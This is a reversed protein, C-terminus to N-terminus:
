ACDERVRCTAEFLTHMTCRISQFEASLRNHEYVYRWNVFANNLESLCSEFTAEMPLTYQPRVDNAASDITIKASENLNDYLKSLDHGKASEGYAEHIAKLYIEISFCANVIFPAVTSGKYSSNFLDRSYLLNATEAFSNAQAFMTDNLSIEKRLGREDLYARVTEIDKEVDGTPEYEGVVIGNLLIKKM